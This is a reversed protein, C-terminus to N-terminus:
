WEQTSLELIQEGNSNFLIVNFVYHEIPLMGTLNYIPINDQLGIM